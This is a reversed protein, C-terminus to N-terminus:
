NDKIKPSAKGWPTLDDAFEIGNAQAMDAVARRFLESRSVFGLRKCMEDIDNAQSDTLRIELRKM